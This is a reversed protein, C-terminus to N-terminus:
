YEERRRRGKKRAEWGKERESIRERTGRDNRAMEKERGGEVKVECPMTGSLIDTIIPKLVQQLYNEGTIKFYVELSKTIL